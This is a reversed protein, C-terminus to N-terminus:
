TERRRTAAKISRRRTARGSRMSASSLCSSSSRAAVTSAMNSSLSTWKASSGSRSPSPAAAGYSRSVYRRNWSEADLVGLATPVIASAVVNSSIDIAINSVRVQNFVLTRGPRLRLGLFSRGIEGRPCVQIRRM